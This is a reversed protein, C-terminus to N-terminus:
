AAGNSTEKVSEKLMADAMQYACAAILEHDRLSTGVSKGVYWGALIAPLAAAAFYDLRSMGEYSRLAEATGKSEDVIFDSAPRPFAPGGNNM